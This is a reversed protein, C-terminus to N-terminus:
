GLVLNMKLHIVSVDSSLGLSVLVIDSSLLIHCFIKM